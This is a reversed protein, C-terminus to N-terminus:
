NKILFALAYYPPITAISANITHTHGQGSGQSSTNASYSADVDSATGPLSLIDAGNARYVTFSHTHAPIQALTLATSGTNGSVTVSSQGGTQGVNYTGGANTISSVIFRNSLNPVPAGTSITGSGNCLKWGSPISSVNGSWMVIMGPFCFVGAGAVANLQAQTVTVPGTINPFTGILASKILRIHDDGQSRNDTGVPNTVVLQNITTAAELGM